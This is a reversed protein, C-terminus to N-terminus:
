RAGERKSQQVLEVLKHWTTKPEWFGHLTARMELDLGVAQAPDLGPSALLESRLTVVGEFVNFVHVVLRDRARLDAREADLADDIPASVAPDRDLEWISLACPTGGLAVEYHVGDIACTREFREALASADLAQVPQGMEILRPEAAERVAHLTSSHESSM